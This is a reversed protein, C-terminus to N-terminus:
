NIMFSHNSNVYNKTYSKQVILHTVYLCNVAPHYSTDYALKDIINNKIEAKVYRPKWDIQKCTQKRRRMYTKNRADVACKALLIRRLHLSM